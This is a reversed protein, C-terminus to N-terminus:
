GDTEGPAIGDAAIKLLWTNLAKARGNVVDQLPQLWQEKGVTTVGNALNLVIKSVMSAAKQLEPTKQKAMTLKPNVFRLMVFAGIAKAVEDESLGQERMRAAMGAAVMGITAPVPLAMIADLIGGLQKCYAQVRAGLEGQIVNTVTNDNLYLKAPDPSGDTLSQNNFAKDLEEATKFEPHSRAFAEKKLLYPTLETKKGVNPLLDTMAAECDRLFDQAGKDDKIYLTAIRTAASTGRFLKQKASKLDDGKLPVGDKTLEERVQTVMASHLLRGAFAPDDGNVDLLDKIRQDALDQSPRGKTSPDPAEIVDLAVSERWGAGRGATMIRDLAEMRVTIAGAKERRQIDKDGRGGSGKGGYYDRERALDGQLGLLRIHAERVAEPVPRGDPRYAQAAQVDGQLAQVRAAVDDRFGKDKSEGLKLFGVKIDRHVDEGVGLLMELDSSGTSSGEETFAYSGSAPSGQANSTATQSGGPLHSRFRTVWGRKESGLRDATKSTSM